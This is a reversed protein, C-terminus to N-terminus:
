LINCWLLLRTLCWRLATVPYTNTIGNRSEKAVNASDYRPHFFYIFLTFSRTRFLFQCAVFLDTLPSLPTREGRKKNLRCAKKSIFASMIKGTLSSHRQFREQQWERIVEGRKVNNHIILVSRLNEQDCSTTALTVLGLCTIEGKEVFFRFITVIHPSCPMVM